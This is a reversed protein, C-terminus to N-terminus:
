GVASSAEPPRQDQALAKREGPTLAAVLGREHLAKQVCPLHSDTAEQGAGHQFGM